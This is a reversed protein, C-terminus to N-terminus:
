EENEEDWDAKFGYVLIISKEMIRGIESAHKEVISVTKEILPKIEVDAEKLMEMCEFIQETQNSKALSAMLIMSFSEPTLENLFNDVQEQIIGYEDPQGIKKMARQIPKTLIKDVLKKMRELPVVEFIERSVENMKNIAEM